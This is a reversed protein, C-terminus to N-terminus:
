HFSKYGIVNAAEWIIWHCWWHLLEPGVIVSCVAHDENRFEQYLKDIYYGNCNSGEFPFSSFEPYLAIKYLRLKESPVEVSITTIRHKQYLIVLCDDVLIDLKGGFELLYNTLFKFDKRYYETFGKGMLPRTINSLM